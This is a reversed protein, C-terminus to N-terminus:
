GKNDNLIEKGIEKQLDEKLDHFKPFERDVIFNIDSGSHYYRAYQSYEKYFEVLAEKSKDLKENLNKLHEV